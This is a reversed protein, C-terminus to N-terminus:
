LLERHVSWGSALMGQTVSQALPASAVPLDIVRCETPRRPDLPEQTQRECILRVIGVM